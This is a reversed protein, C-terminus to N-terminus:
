PLLPPPVRHFSLAQGLVAQGGVWKRTEIWKPKSHMYKELTLGPVRYRICSVYTGPLGKKVSIGRQKPALRSPNLYFTINQLQVRVRCPYFRSPNTLIQQQMDAHSPPPLPSVRATSKEHIPNKEGHMKQRRTTQRPVM